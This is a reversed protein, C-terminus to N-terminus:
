QSLQTGGHERGSPRGSHPDLMSGGRGRGQQRGWPVCLMPWLVGPRPPPPFGPQPRPPLDRGPACASDPSAVWFTGPSESCGGPTQPFTDRGGHVPLFHFPDKDGPNRPMLLEPERQLRHRPPPSRGHTNQTRTTM